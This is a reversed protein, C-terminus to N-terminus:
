APIQRIFGYKSNIEIVILRVNFQKELRISFNGKM